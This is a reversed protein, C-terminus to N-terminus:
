RYYVLENKDCCTCESVRNIMHLVLASVTETCYIKMHIVKREYLKYSTYTYVM